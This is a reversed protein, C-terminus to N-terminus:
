SDDEPDRRQNDYAASIVTELDSLWPEKVGLSNVGYRVRSVADDLLEDNIEDWAAIKEDGHAKVHACPWREDDVTCHVGSSWGARDSKRPFHMEAIRQSLESIRKSIEERESM